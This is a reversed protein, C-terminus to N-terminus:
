MKRSDGQMRVEKYIKELNSVYEILELKMQQKSNKEM